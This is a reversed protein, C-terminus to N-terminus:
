DGVPARDGPRSFWAASPNPRLYVMSTITSYKSCHAIVVQRLARAIKRGASIPTNKAETEQVLKPARVDPAVGIESILLFTQPDVGALRVVARM